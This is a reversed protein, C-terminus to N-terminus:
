RKQAVASDAVTVAFAGTMVRGGRKVQVFIRYDGGQPFEYPFEISSPMTDARAHMSHDALKLRGGQTTDGRDRIAFADQAAMTITGMPHLHVYVSGDLRTVVGHAPMGLYAELRAPQGKADAVRVTITQEVGARLQGHPMLEVTMTSGDALKMSGDTAADGIFWADDADSATAPKPQGDPVTLTAVLTREFGTEHVVDGYVHYSGAPLQPVTVRFNPTGSSDLMVPHLHAFGRADGSKVLFLHMMKGHDPMLLSVTNRLAYLPEDISLRLESGEFTAGLPAPRYITRAYDRDVANWWRAGGFLVLALVPLTLAAIKRARMRQAPELHDNASVLSEGAAKYVINVLGAVLVVGFVALLAGLIPNMALRGTAVSAVPVLVNATGRAGSVIVDVGYAGRAMLWLSGEFTGAAGVLKTEDASPAGKSGARWFVPRISVRQADAGVRVTVRAIGPVVEPPRVVVKVDYPGAKGAFFVNPSGIHASLLPLMLAAGIAAFARRM